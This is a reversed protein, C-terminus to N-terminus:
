FKFTVNNFHCNNFTPFKKDSSFESISTNTTNIIHREKNKRQTM